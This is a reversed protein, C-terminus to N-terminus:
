FLSSPSSIMAMQSPSLILNEMLSDCEDHHVDALSTHRYPKKAKLFAWFSMCLVTPFNRSIYLAGYKGNWDKVSVACSSPRNSSVVTVPSSNRRFFLTLRGNWHGVYRASPLDLDRLKETM